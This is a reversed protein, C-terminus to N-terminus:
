ISADTFIAQAITVEGLPTRQLSIEKVPIDKLEEPLLFYAPFIKHIAILVKEM